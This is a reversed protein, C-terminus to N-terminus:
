NGNEHLTGIFAVVDNIAQDDILVFAMPKMQRGFVDASDYGRLGNKFNKLQTVHYWDQQLLLSPANLPLSGRADSGHCAACTVYLLRGKEINGRISKTLGPHPMSSVYRSVENITEPTLSLAIGRMTSGHVDQMATGRAGSKYNELQRKIYAEDIGAIAPSNQSFDGGGDEGHCAICVTYTVDDADSFWSATLLILFTLTSAVNKM